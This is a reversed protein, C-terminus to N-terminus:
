GSMNPIEHCECKKSEENHMARDVFAEISEESLEEEEFPNPLLPSM